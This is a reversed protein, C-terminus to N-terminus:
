AATMGGDISMTSGTLYSPSDLLLWAALDAIEEPRGLRGVPIGAAFDSKGGRDRDSAEIAAMMRTDTPGPCLVNATIEEAALELAVSRTLGVVAHKSAAYGGLEPVGRLGAQSAVTVIRGRRNRRMGPIVAAVVLFTALVNVRLVQEFDERPYDETRSLPGEIGAAHLLADPAAFAEVCRELCRDVQVSATLDAADFGSTGGARRIAEATEQAAAEDRDVVWVRSGRAAVALAAARGIGGGGGTIMVVPESM